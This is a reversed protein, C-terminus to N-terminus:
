VRRASGYEPVAPPAAHRAAHRAAAGIFNRLLIGVGHRVSREDGDSGDDRYRSRAGDADRVRLAVARNGRVILRQIEIQRARGTKGLRDAPVRVRGDIRHQRTALQLEVPRVVVLLLEIRRAPSEEGAQLVDTEAHIVRFEAKRAAFRTDGVIADADAAPRPLGREAHAVTPRAAIVFRERALVQNLRPERQPGITIKRHAGHEIEGGFGALLLLQDVGGQTGKPVVAHRDEAVHFQGGIIQRRRRRPTDARHDFDGRAQLDDSPPELAVPTAFVPEADPEGVRDPRVEFL